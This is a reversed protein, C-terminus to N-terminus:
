PPYPAPINKIKGQLLIHPEKNLEVWFKLVLAASHM